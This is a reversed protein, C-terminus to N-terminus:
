GRAGRDTLALFAEEIGASAVELGRADPWRSILSRLAADSDACRLTVTDGRRDAHVVGPLSLLATVTEGEVDARITRGGVAARVEATPGDAVVRGHALLIARDAHADAEELHHTAFLVTRGRDTWTRMATWFSRRTVVDMAVTPEDLVLLDPDGAIALAFRVRQTQGGSLRDARRDAIDAIGATTLVDDMALPSPSLGRIVDILERVTLGGLLGGNQLMAGVRGARCARAPAVGWVRVTGSDPPVLGLVVDVITSKGAGNPGLLAVVDGGQIRLDVGDVAPVSGFRKRVGTLEIADM